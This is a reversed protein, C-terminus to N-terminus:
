IYESECLNFIKLGCKSAFRYTAYAGGWKHGVYCIAFQSERVMYRNKQLIAAKYHYKEFGEPYIIEDFIEKNFVKFDLYPIVLVNKINPYQQKIHFVTYACKRDFGGQGGSIFHTFGDEICKKIINVLDSEKLGFCENHGIFVVKKM